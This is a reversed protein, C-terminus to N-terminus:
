SSREPMIQIPDKVGILKAKPNKMRIYDLNFNPVLLEPKYNTKELVIPLGDVHDWHKHSIM